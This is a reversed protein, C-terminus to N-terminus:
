PGLKPWSRNQHIVNPQAKDMSCEGEFQHQTPGLLLKSVLYDHHDRPLAKTFIDTLQVHSSVYPVHITDSVVHQRIFHCDIEIHKTHEHQVTKKAIQIASTNDAYLPTPINLFVGFERLLQHLWVIESSASSMSRYETETSSKSVTPQKKCKWSIISKGLFM